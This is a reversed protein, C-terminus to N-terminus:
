RREVDAPWRVRVSPRGSETKEVAVDCGYVEGLLPEDLVEVPAGVRAVRGSALLLLRDCLEAALNLDHSVLVITVGRERNVRRLLAVAEVQHRLDLHATPEDLVLLRPRQALARALAVRQREGGSLTGVAAGALATVGTLAMAERAIARDAASEFYRRPAHPFRGMLVLAEVTFPLGAPLDQPVVAIERAIEWRPLGGLPRGDLALTGAAPPLVRTLLRMLTTKGASNPGIVGLIEGARVDFSVDALAFSPGRGDPATYVFGLDRAELLATM